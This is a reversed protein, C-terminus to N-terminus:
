LPQAADVADKGYRRIAETKRILERERFDYEETRLWKEADERNGFKTLYVLEGNKTCEGYIMRKAM